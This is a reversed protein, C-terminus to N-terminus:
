PYVYGAPHINITISNSTTANSGQSDKCIVYYSKTGTQSFPGVTASGHGTANTPHSVNDTVGTPPTGEYLKCSGSDLGASTIWSITSTTPSGNVADNTCIETPAIIYVTEANNPLTVNEFSLWGVVMSGWAYGTLVNNAAVPGYTITPATENQSSMSVWGDWCGDNDIDSSPCTGDNSTNPTQFRAWGVLNNGALKTGCNTANFQAGSPCGDNFKIWGVNDSWGYGAWNGNADQTVGYDISSSADNCNLSIWGITDSWLWGHVNGSSATCSGAAQTKNLSFLFSIVFANFIAILSLIFIKKTITIQM